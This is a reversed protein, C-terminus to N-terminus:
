VAADAGGGQAQVVGGEGGKAGEKRRIWPGPPRGAATKALALEREVWAKRTEFDNPLALYVIAKRNHEGGDGFVDCLLFKDDLPLDDFDRFFLELAKELPSIHVRKELLPKLAAILCACTIGLTRLESNYSSSSSSSAASASAAADFDSPPSHSLVRRLKKSARELSAHNTNFKKRKRSQRALAAASSPTADRSDRPHSAPRPSASISQQHPASLSNSHRRPTADGNYHNTIPADNDRPNNVDNFNPPPTNDLVRDWETDSDVSDNATGASTGTALDPRGDIPDGLLEDLQDKYPPLDHRFRARDKHEGFYRRMVDGPAQPLGDERKDWHLTDRRHHKWLKWTKKLSDLKNAGQSKTPRKGSVNYVCELGINWGEEKFGGQTDLGRDTADLLGQLLARTSLDDWIFRNQAQSAVQPQPTTATPVPSRLVSLDDTVSM